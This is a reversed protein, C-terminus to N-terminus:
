AAEVADFVEVVAALFSQAYSGGDGDEPFHEWGADPLSAYEFHHTAEAREAWEKLDEYSTTEAWERGALTGAEESESTLKKEYEDREARLRKIHEPTIEDDDDDFM